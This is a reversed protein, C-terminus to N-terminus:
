CLEVVSQLAQRDNMISNCSSEHWRLLMALLVFDTLVQIQRRLAKAVDIIYSQNGCDMDYNKPTVAQSPIKPKVTGHSRYQQLGSLRLRSSSLVLAVPRLM